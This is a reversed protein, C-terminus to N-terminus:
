KLAQWPFNGWWWWTVKALSCTAVKDNSIFFDFIFRWVLRGSTSMETSLIQFFLFSNSLLMVSSTVHKVNRAALSYFAYKRALLSNQPNFRSFQMKKLAFSVFLFVCGTLNLHNWRNGIDWIEQFWTAANGIVVAGSLCAQSCVELFICLQEIWLNELPSQTQTSATASRSGFMWALLQERPRRATVETNGPCHLCRPQHLQLFRLSVLAAASLVVWTRSCVDGYKRRVTQKIAASEDWPRLKLIFLTPYVVAARQPACGGM